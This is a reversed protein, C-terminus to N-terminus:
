ITTLSQCESPTLATGKFILLQNYRVNTNATAGDNWSNLEIKTNTSDFNQLYVASTSNIKEVGNVYCLLRNSNRSIVVKNRGDVFQEYSGIITATYGGISSSMELHFRNLIKNGYFRWWEGSQRNGVLATAGSGDDDVDEVDFFVSFDGSGFDANGSQSTACFDDVRSVSSGYTPIYSTAYSGAEAQLGWAYVSGTGNQVDPYIQVFNSTAGTTTTEFWIRHWGNGYDEIDYNGNVADESYLSFDGSANINYQVQKGQNNRFRLRTAVGTGKFFGSWIHNTGLTGLGDQARGADDSNAQVKTVLNSGDPATVNELSLTAGNALSFGGELWESNTVLNTRLPELLLAPCSSDTYDLRPVNDTIGGEVATTTTTIVDRAVMGQEIQADQIYINGSTHTINGNGVAPYVRVLSSTENFSISCRYWGGGVDEIKRDILGSQTVGLAGNALDFYSQAATGSTNVRLRIWDETGAKAYISFTQVGSLNASEELRQSGTGGTIDLLWADNSGDYGSQGSTVSINTTIWTTDFNNSQLLLNQTEKEIFGDANVRTAASSRTFTFDGDGSVPKQSYVKGTKTGSPILVLSSKDYISAM